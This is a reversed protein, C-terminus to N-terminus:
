YRNEAVLVEKMEPHDKYHLVESKRVGVVATVLASGITERMVKNSELAAVAEELKAPLRAVTEPDLEAVDTDPM